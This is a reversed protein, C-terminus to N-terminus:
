FPIDDTFIDSQPAEAKPTGQVAGFAQAKPPAPPATPAAPKPIAWKVQAFGKANPAIHVMGKKGMWSQPRYDGRQIGFADFIETMRANRKEMDSTDDFIRWKDPKYGPYDKIRIEIDRVPQGNWDGDVPMGLAIMYDGEPVQEPHAREEPRYNDGFAM